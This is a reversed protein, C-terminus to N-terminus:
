SAKRSSSSKAPAKRKPATKPKAAAAKTTPKPKATTKRKAAPKTAPKSAPEATTGADATDAPAKVISIAEGAGKLQTGPDVAVVVPNAMKEITGMIPGLAHAIKKATSAAASEAAETAAQKAAERIQKDRAASRKMAEEHAPELEDLSGFDEFISDEKKLPPNERKEAAALADAAKQLVQLRDYTQRCVDMFISWGLRATPSLDRWHPVEDFDKHERMHNFLQEGNQCSRKCVYSGMENIHDEQEILAQPDHGGAPQEGDDAQLLLVLEVSATYGISTALNACDIERIDM